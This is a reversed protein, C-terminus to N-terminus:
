IKNSYKPLINIGSFKTATEIWALVGCNWRPRVSTRMEEEKYPPRGWGEGNPSRL